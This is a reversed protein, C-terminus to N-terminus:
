GRAITPIDNAHKQVLYELHDVFNANEDLTTPAPYTALWEFSEWHEQLTRAIYPNTGVIFPLNELARTRRSLLRPIEALVYAASQLISKTTLPKGHSLLKSLTLPYSPQALHNALLTALRPSPSRLFRLSDPRTHSQSIDVNRDNNRPNVSYCRKTGILNLEAVSPRFSRHRLRLLLM